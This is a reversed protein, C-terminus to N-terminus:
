TATTCLTDSTLFILEPPTDFGYKRAIPLYEGSAKMARLERQFAAHLDTDGLRFACAAGNSPDDAIPFTVALDLDRQRYVNSLSSNSGFAVQIRKAVLADIISVDGPFQRINAPDVGAELAVRSHAGGTSVGIILKQAVLDTVLTPPAALEGKLSVFSGGDFLLPDSYLVQECRQKTISLAAAIFDWRGAQLGPVLQGYTAAIGEMQPVGLRAMILKAFAPACGTLTGDPDIGSFPPQNPLGVKVKKESRLRALLGQGSDDAAAWVNRSSSIALTGAAFSALVHRRSWLGCM